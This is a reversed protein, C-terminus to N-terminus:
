RTAEKETKRMLVADFDLGSEAILEDAWRRLTDGDMRNLDYTGACNQIICIAMCLADELRTVDGSM